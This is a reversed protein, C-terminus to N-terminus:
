SRFVAVSLHIFFVIFDFLVFWPETPANSVVDDGLIAIGAIQGDVIAVFSTPFCESKCYDRIENKMGELDHINWFNYFHKWEKWLLEALLPIYQQHHLLYDIRVQLNQDMITFHPWENPVVGFRFFFPALKKNSGKL